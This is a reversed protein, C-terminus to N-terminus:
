ECRKIVVATLDDAQPAGACFELVSQQLLNIIEAAPLEHHQRLLAHMRKTGFMEGTSNAAEFFGDTTIIVMDGPQFNVIEVKDYDSDDLVGLPLGTAPEERFLDKQHNFLIIPGHGASAYTM